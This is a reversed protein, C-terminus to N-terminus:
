KDEKPLKFRSLWLGGHTNRLAYLYPYEKGNKDKVPLGRWWYREMSDKWRRGEVAAFERLTALEEKTLPRYDDFLIGTM